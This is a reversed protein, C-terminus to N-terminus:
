QNNTPQLYEGDVTENTLSYCTVLLLYGTVFLATDFQIRIM